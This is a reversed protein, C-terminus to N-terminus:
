IFPFTTSCVEQQSQTSNESGAHPENDSGVEGIDNM